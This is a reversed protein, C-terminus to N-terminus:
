LNWLIFWSKKYENIFNNVLKFVEKYSKELIDNEVIYDFKDALLMEDKAKDVRIKINSDTESNRNKLRKELEDLSPPKIFITLSQDKFKRKINLGGIVDIDFILNKEKANELESFLTGYFVGKYVEEWEVFEDNSIRSMFEEKSIFFYNKGDKENKRPERSTASISFCLRLNKENLLKHVITTKGSGSPAAIVIFKSRKM